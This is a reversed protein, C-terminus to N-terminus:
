SSVGSIWISLVLACVATVLGGNLGHRILFNLAARTM